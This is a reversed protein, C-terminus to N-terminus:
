DKDRKTNFSSLAMFSHGAYGSVAGALAALLATAAILLWSNGLGFMAAVRGAVIRSGTLFLFLSAGLWLLGASLLGTRVAQWPKRAGAAGYVFPVIMVWWWYPLLGHLVLMAALCVLVATV